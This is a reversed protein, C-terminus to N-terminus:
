TANRKLLEAHGISEGTVMSFSSVGSCVNGTLAKLIKSIKMSSFGKKSFYCSFNRYEAFKVVDRVRTYTHDLFYM